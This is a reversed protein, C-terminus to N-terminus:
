NLYILIGCYKIAKTFDSRKNSSPRKTLSVIKEEEFTM